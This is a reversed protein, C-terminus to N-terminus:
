RCGTRLTLSLFATGMQWTSVAVALVQPPAESVSATVLDTDNTADAFCGGKGYTPIAEDSTSKAIVPPSSKTNGGFVICLRGSALYRAASVAIEDMIKAWVETATVSAHDLM